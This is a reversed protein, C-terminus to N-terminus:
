CNFCASSNVVRPLTNTNLYRNVPVELGQVVPHYIIYLLFTNILIKIFDIYVEYTCNIQGRDVGSGILRLFCAAGGHPRQYLGVLTLLLFETEASGARLLLHLSVLLLQGNEGHEPAQLVLRPRQPLEPNEVPISSMREPLEPNEVPISPM